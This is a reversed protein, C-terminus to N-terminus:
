NLFMKLNGILKSQNIDDQLLSRNHLIEKVSLGELDDNSNLDSDIEFVHCGLEKLYSYASNEKNLFVKAGLYVASIINGVAQQRYHNMIVVNCNQMLKTYEKLSIFDLLPTFNEKFLMRGKNLLENKLKNDGYSLPVILKKTALDFSKLHEFVELHNNSYSCSNGLLVNNGLSVQSDIQDMFYEYPYYGFKLYQVPKTIVKNQYYVELEQRYLVAINEVKQIAKKNLQHLEEGSLSKGYVLNIAKRKLYKKFNFKSHKKLLAKTRKGLIEKNYLYPNSYVEAGWLIYLIKKSNINLIIKAWIDNMGHIVLWDASKAIDLFSKFTNTNKVIENTVYKVDVFRTKPNAPPKLLYLENMKPFALEFSSMAGNIFKEDTTFHIIRM